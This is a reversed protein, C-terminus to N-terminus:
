GVVLDLCSKDLFWNDQKSVVFSKTLFIQSGFIDQLVKSKKYNYLLNHICIQNPWFFRSCIQKSWFFNQILIKEIKGIFKSLIKKQWTLTSKLHKLKAFFTKLFHNKHLKLHKLSTKKEQSPPGMISIKGWKLNKGM